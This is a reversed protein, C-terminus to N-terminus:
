LTQFVSNGFMPVILFAIYLETSFGVHWFIVLLEANHEYIKLLDNYKPGRHYQPFHCQLIQQFQELLLEHWYFVPTQCQVTREIFGVCCISNSQYFLDHTIFSHPSLGDFLIDLKNCGTIWVSLSLHQENCVCIDCTLM